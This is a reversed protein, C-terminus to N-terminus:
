KPHIDLKMLYEALGEEVASWTQDKVQTLDWVWHLSGAYGMGYAQELMERLMVRTRKINRNKFEHGVNFTAHWGDSIKSLVTHNFGLPVFRSGTDRNYFEAKGSAGRRVGIAPLPTVPQEPLVAPAEEVPALSGAHTMQPFVANGSYLALAIDRPKWAGPPPGSFSFPTISCLLSAMLSVSYIIM